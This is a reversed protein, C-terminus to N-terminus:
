TVNTSVICWQQTLRINKCYEVLGLRKGEDHPIYVTTWALASQQKMIQTVYFSQLSRNLPSALSTLPLALFPEFTRSRSRFPTRALVRKPDMPSQLLEPAVLALKCNLKLAQLLLHTAFTSYMQFVLALWQKALPPKWLQARRRRLCWKQLLLEGVIGFHVLGFRRQM